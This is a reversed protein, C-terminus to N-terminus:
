IYSINKNKCFCKDDCVLQEYNFNKNKKFIKFNKNFFKKISIIISKM